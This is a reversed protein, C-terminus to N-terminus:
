GVWCSLAIKLADHDCIDAKIFEVNGALGKPLNYSVHVQPSFNDIIRVESGASILSHALRQGIFGAGGTILIKM